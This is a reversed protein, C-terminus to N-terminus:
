NLHNKDHFYKPNQWNKKESDVSIIMVNQM